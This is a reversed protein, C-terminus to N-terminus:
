ACPEYAEFHHYMAKDVAFRVQDCSKTHVVVVAGLGDELKELAGHFLVANWAAHPAVVARLVQHDGFPHLFMTTVVPSGVYPSPLEIRGYCKDTACQRMVM